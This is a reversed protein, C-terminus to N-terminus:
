CVEEWPSESGVSILYEHAEKITDFEFDDHNGHPYVYIKNNVFQAYSYDWSEDSKFIWESEPQYCNKIKETVWNEKLKM